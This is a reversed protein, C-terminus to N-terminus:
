KRTRRIIKKKKKKLFASFSISKGHVKMLFTELFLCDDIKLIAIDSHDSEMTEKLLDKIM